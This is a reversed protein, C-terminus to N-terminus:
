RLDKFVDSIEVQLERLIPVALAPINSSNVVKERRLV